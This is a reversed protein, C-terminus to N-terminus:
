AFIHIHMSTFILSINLHQHFIHFNLIINPHSCIRAQLFVTANLSFSIEFGKCYSWTKIHYFWGSFFRFFTEMAHNEFRFFPDQTRKLEIYFSLVPAIYDHGSGSMQCVPPHPRFPQRWFIESILVCITCESSM